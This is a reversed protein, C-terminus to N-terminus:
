DGKGGAELETQNSIVEELTYVPVKYTSFFKSMDNYVSVMIILGNHLPTFNSSSFFNFSTIGEVRKYGYTQKLCLCSKTFFYSCDYIFYPLSKM